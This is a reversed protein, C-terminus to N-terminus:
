LAGLENEVRLRTESVRSRILLSLVLLPSLSLLLPSSPFSLPGGGKTFEQIRGQNSLLRTVYQCLQIDAITRPVAAM